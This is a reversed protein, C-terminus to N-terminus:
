PGLMWSAAKEKIGRNGIKLRSGEVLGLTRSAGLKDEWSLKDLESSFHDLRDMASTSSSQLTTAPRHPPLCLELVKVKTRRQRMRVKQPVKHSMVNWTSHSLSNRGWLCRQIIMNQSSLFKYITKCSTIFIPVCIFLFSFCKTLTYVKDCIWNLETWDSLQKRSKTVGHLAACWAERDM